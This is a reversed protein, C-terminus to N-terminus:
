PDKGDHIIRILDEYGAPGGCDEPPCARAGDLCKPQVAARPHVAVLTITHMWDGGFDYSYTIKQKPKTLLEAICHEHEPHVKAGFDNGDSIGYRSRGQTFEHLHSNTWGMVVQLVNHLDDLGADAQILFTRWIPPEVHDLNVRLEYIPRLTKAM